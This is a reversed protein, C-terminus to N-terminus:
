KQDLDASEGARMVFALLVNGVIIKDFPDKDRSFIIINSYPSPPQLSTLPRLSAYQHWSTRKM